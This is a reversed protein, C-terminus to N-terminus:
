PRAVNVATVQTENLTHDAVRSLLDTELDVQMNREDAAIQANMEAARRMEEYMKNMELAAEATANREPETANEIPAGGPSQGCGALLLLTLFIPRM